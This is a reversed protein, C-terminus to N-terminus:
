THHGCTSTTTLQRTLHCGRTSATTVHCAVHRCSAHSDHSTMAEGRRLWLSATRSWCASLQSSEARGRPREARREERGGVHDLRTPTLYTYSRVDDDGQSPKGGDPIQGFANFGFGFWTMSVLRGSPSGHTSPLEVAISVSVSTFSCVACARSGIVYFYSHCHAMHRRKIILKPLTDNYFNIIM